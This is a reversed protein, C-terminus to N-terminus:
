KNGKLAQWCQDCISSGVWDRDLHQCGTEIKIFLKEREDKRAEEIEKELQGLMKKLKVQVLGDSTHYETLNNVVITRLKERVGDEINM